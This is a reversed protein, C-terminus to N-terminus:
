SEKSILKKLKKELQGITKDQAEVTLGYFFRICTVQKMKKRKRDVRIYSLNRGVKYKMIQKEISYSKPEVAFLKEIEKYEKKFMIYGSCISNHECLSCIYAWFTNGNNNYTIKETKLLHGSCCFYTEFGAKNLKDILGVIKTDIPINNWLVEKQDERYEMNEPASYVPSYSKKNRVKNALILNDPLAMDKNVSIDNLLVDEATIRNKLAGVSLDSDDSIEEVRYDPSSSLKQKLLPLYKDDKLIEPIDVKGIGKGYDRKSEDAYHIKTASDAIKKCDPHIILDNNENSLYYLLTGFDKTYLSGNWISFNPNEEDVSIIFSHSTKAQITNVSKPIYIKKCSCCMFDLEECAPNIFLEEAGKQKLFKKFGKTYLAGNESSFYPNNEDVVYIAESSNGIEKVSAPIIIKGPQKKKNKFLIFSDGLVETGEPVIFKEDATFLADNEIIKLNKPFTLKSNVIIGSKAGVVECNENIVNKRNHNNQNLYILKKFDKTYVSGYEDCELYPNNKSIVFEIRSRKKIGCEDFVVALKKVKSSIYVHKVFPANDKVIYLVDEVGEPIIMGYISKYKNIFESRNLIIKKYPSDEKCEPINEAKEIFSKWEGNSASVVCLCNQNDIMKSFM